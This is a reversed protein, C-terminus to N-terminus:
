EGLRLVGHASGDDGTVLAGNASYVVVPRVQVHVLVGVFRICGDSAGNFQQAPESVLAFGVLGSVEVAGQAIFDLATSSV